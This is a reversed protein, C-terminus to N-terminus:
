VKFLATLQLNVATQAEKETDAELKAYRENRAKDLEAKQKEMELKATLNNKNKTALDDTILELKLHIRFNAEPSIFIGFFLTSALGGVLSAIAHAKSLVEDIASPLSAGEQLFKFSPFIELGIQSSSILLQRGCSYAFEIATFVITAAEVVAATIEALRTLFMRTMPPHDPQSLGHIKNLTTSLPPYSATIKTM